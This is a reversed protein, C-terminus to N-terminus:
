RSNCVCTFPNTLAGDCVSPQALTTDIRTASHDQRAATPANILPSFAM